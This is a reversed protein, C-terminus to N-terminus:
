RMYLEAEKEEATKKHRKERIVVPRKIRKVRPKKPKM